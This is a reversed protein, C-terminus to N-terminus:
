KGGATLRRAIRRRMTVTTGKGPTSRVRLTDMFSEMITFGMGSREENGTTFLPTRAQAVDAIGVGWDQVTIELLSDEFLRLKLKVRGLRDPYAHVIAHTVAGSVATKLANIEDLPPDLQAAFCAAATRAFGENASRSLFEITATNVPKM